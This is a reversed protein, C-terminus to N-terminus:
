RDRDEPCDRICHAVRGRHGQRGDAGSGVRGRCDPDGHLGGRRGRHAGHGGPRRGDQRWGRLRRAAGTVMRGGPLGAAQMGYGVAGWEGAQRLQENQAKQRAAKVEEIEQKSQEGFLNRYAKFADERLARLEETQKAAERWDAAMSEAASLTEALFAHGGLPQVEPVQPPQYPVMAQGPGGPAGPGTHQWDPVLASGPPQPPEPVPARYPVLPYNPGVPVGAGGHRWDPVLASGPPGTDLLNGGPLELPRQPAAVPPQPPVAALRQAMGIFEEASISKLLADALQQRAGALKAPTLNAAATGLAATVTDALVADIAAQHRGVAAPTQRAPGAVALLFAQQRLGEVQKVLEATM